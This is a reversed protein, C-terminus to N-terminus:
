WDGHKWTSCYTILPASALRGMVEAKTAEKGVLPTVNLIKGIMQVEKKAFELQELRRKGKRKIEAVWPDGVLLVKGDSCYRESSEAMLKLISLSPILRVTFSECLFKSCHDRFASFPALLIPGDPVIILESGEILDSIPNIILEYLNQLPSSKSHSIKGDEECRKQVLDKVTPEELARNECQVNRNVRIEDYANKTLSHLSKFVDEKLYANSIEKRRFLVPGEKQLVWFNLERAGAAIFVTQTTISSITKVVDSQKVSPQPLTFQVGYQSM